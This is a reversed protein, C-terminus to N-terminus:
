SQGAALRVHSGRTSAAKDLKKVIEAYKETARGAPISRTATGFLSARASTIAGNTAYVVVSQRTTQAAIATTASAWCARRTMSGLRSFLHMCGGGSLVNTNTYVRDLGRLYTVAFRM